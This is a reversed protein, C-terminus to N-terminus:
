NYHVDGLLPHYPTDRTLTAPIIAIVCTTPHVNCELCLVAKVMYVTAYMNLFIEM